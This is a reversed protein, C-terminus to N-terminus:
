VCSGGSAADAPDSGNVSSWRYKVCVTGPGANWRRGAAPQTRLSFWGIPTGNTRVVRLNQSKKGITRGNWFAECCSGYMWSMFFWILLVMGVGVGSLGEKILSMMGSLMFGIVIVALKVITDLLFSISRKGPGAIVFQFDVGEPTEVTVRTDVKLKSSM